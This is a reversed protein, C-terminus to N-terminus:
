VGAQSAHRSTCVPTLGSVHAEASLRPSFQPLSFPSLRFPSSHPGLLRPHVWSRAQTQWLPRVTLMCAFPKRTCGWERNSLWLSDPVVSTVETWNLETVWDHGVRQSGMFQLVGPRGTWWWSGSNVWVWAWQTPSAMGAMEDETTGKEGQGWDRGADPDKRTLWSKLAGVFRHKKLMTGSPCQSQRGANGHNLHSQPCHWWCHVKHTWVVPSVWHAGGLPSTRCLFVWHSREWHFHEKGVEKCGLQSISRPAELGWVPSFVRSCVTSHYGCLLSSARSFM